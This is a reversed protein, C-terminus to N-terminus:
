EKKKKKKKKEWEGEEYRFDRVANSSENRGWFTAPLFCSLTWRPHSFSFLPVFSVRFGLGQGGLPVPFVLEEHIINRRGLTPSVQIYLRQGGSVSPESLTTFFHICVKYNDETHTSPIHGQMPHLFILVYQNPEAFHNANKHM